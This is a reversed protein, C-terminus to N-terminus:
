EINQVQERLKEVEGKGDVVLGNVVVDAVKSGTTNLERQIEQLLFEVRKGVAGAARLTTGLAVLHSDLRVLEETVDGREALSVIEQTLRQPDLDPVGVLRGVRERVKADFAERVGPLRGRIEGTIRRLTATRQLLERQLATGERRRERDFARLASALARRLAPREGELSSTEENTEFLDPLRLVDAITVDGAVGLRRALRRAATVYERAMEERVGVRYRRRAAVPTRTVAVDIRGREAGDRVRDRIEGEWAAYERPLAVKVDLFRQNVGRIEVAVRATRADASAAGYGTM